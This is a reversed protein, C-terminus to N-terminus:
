NSALETICFYIVYSTLSNSVIIYHLGIDVHYTKCCRLFDCLQSILELGIRYDLFYQM